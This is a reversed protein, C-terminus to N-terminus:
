IRRGWGMRRAVRPTRIPRGGEAIEQSHSPHRHRVRREGKPQGAHLREKTGYPRGIGTGQDRDRRVGTEAVITRSKLSSPIPHIEGTRGRGPRARSDHTSTGSPWCTTRGPGDTGRGTHLTRGNEPMYTPDDQCRRRIEAHEIKARETVEKSEARARVIKEDREERTPDVARAAEHPHATRTTDVPEYTRGRGDTYGKVIEWARDRDTCARDRDRVAADRQADSQERERRYRVSADRFDEGRETVHKLKRELRDIRSTMVDDARRYGEKSTSTEVDRRLAEKAAEQILAKCGMCGPITSEGRATGGGAEPLTTTKSGFHSAFARFAPDTGGTGPQITEERSTPAGYVPAQTGIHHPVHTSTNTTRVGEREYAGFTRRWGKWGV